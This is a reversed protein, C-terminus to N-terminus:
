CADAYLLKENKSTYRFTNQRQIGFLMGIIVASLVASFAYVTNVVSSHITFLDRGGLAASFGLCYEFPLMMKILVICSLFYCGMLSAILYAYIGGVHERRFGSSAISSSEETRSSARNKTCSFNEYFRNFKRNVALVTQLFTRVQTFGLVTTLVLSICQSLMTFDKQSVLNHGSLWLLATTVIDGQAARWEKPDATFHHMISVGASFLRVLLVISFVVGVWAKIRGITTRAVAAVAQANRMEDIDERMDKCLNQLFEIETHLIKQRLAIDDGLDSFGTMSKKNTSKTTNQWKTNMSGSRPPPSRSSKPGITISMEGAESRKTDLANRVSQLESEARTIAEPRVPELYFGALCTYPMSVSGFGNLLSSVLLGIACLWSVAVSLASTDTATQMILPGLSGIIVLASTMGCISGLFLVKSQRSSSNGNSSPRLNSGHNSAQRIDDDNVTMALITESPRSRLPSLRRFLRVVQVVVLVFLKYCFRIPRPCNRPLIFLSYKRDARDSSRSSTGVWKNFSQASAVGAMCPLLVIIDLCLMWLFFWYAKAITFTSNNIASWASDDQSLIALWSSPIAELLSLSFLSLSLGLAVGLSSQEINREFLFRPLYASLSASAGFLIVDM